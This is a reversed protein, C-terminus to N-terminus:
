DAIISSVCLSLKLTVTITGLKYSPQGATQEEFRAPM